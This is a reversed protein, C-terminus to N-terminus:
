SRACKELRTDITEFTFPVLQNFEDRAEEITDFHKLLKLRVHSTIDECGEEVASVRSQLAYEKVKAIIFYAKKIFYFYNMYSWQFYGKNSLAEYEYFKVKAM